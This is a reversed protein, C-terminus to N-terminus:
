KMCSRKGEKKKSHVVVVFFFRGKM